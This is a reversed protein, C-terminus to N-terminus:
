RRYLEKLVDECFAYIKENGLCLVDLYIGWRHGVEYPGGTCGLEPYAALAAKMHGPMDIEPIITIYRQRAYEVIERAQDQTYFGGYERQDDVMSNFGVITGSRKSGVSTLRPYKKIEIRWGQDDTLHWHFVNMNHMAMLDLYKKIFDVTFFHRSCDLMMGRYGFRPQDAIRVASLEINDTKGVPVSKRLTQIGYFMGKASGGTIVIGKKDVSIRYAEEGMKSDTCLTIANKQAKGSAANTSLKIGTTQTLYDALFKANRKMAEDSGTYVIRTASSLMFPEGKQMSVSAPLPVIDYSAKVAASTTTTIM